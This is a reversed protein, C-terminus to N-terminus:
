DTPRPPSPSQRHRTFDLCGSLPFAAPDARLQQLVRAIPATRYSRNAALEGLADHLIEWPQSTEVLGQVGLEHFRNLLVLDDLRVLALVRPAPSAAPLSRVLEIRDLDALDPGLLVLDPRLHACGNPASTPPSADGVLHFRPALHVLAQVLLDRWLGEDAVLMVRCAPTRDPGKDASRAGSRPTDCPTRVLSGVLRGSGRTDM